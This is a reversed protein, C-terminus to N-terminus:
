AKHYTQKFIAKVAVISFLMPIGYCLLFLTVMYGATGSRPMYSFFARILFSVHVGINMAANNIMALVHGEMYSLCYLIQRCHLLNGAICSVQTRDRLQSSGRSFPIAVGELIGAQSIGHVSSGPPSCDIPNCLTPCSQAVLM